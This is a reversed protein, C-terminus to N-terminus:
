EVLNYHDKRGFQSTCEFSVFFFCFVFLLAPDQHSDMLQHNSKSIHANCEFIFKLKLNITSPHSKLLVCAQLFYLSFVALFHIKEKILFLKILFSFLCYDVVAIFFYFIFILMVKCMAFVIGSCLSLLVSPM